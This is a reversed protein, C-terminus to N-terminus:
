LAGAAPRARPPLPLPQWWEPEPWIKEDYHEGPSTGAWWWGQNRDAEGDGEHWYAEGVIWRPASGEPTGAWHPVAIIIMERTASPRPATDIPRWVGWESQLGEVADAAATLAAAAGVLRKSAADIEAIVDDLIADKNM